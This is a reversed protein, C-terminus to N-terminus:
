RTPTGVTQAIRDTLYKRYAEYLQAADKGASPRMYDFYSYVVLKERFTGLARLQDSVRSFDAPKAKFPDSNLPPGDTQAFVEALLWVDGVFDENLTLIAEVFPLIDRWKEPGAVAAGDQFILIDVGAEDFFRTWWAAFKILKSKTPDTYGSAVVAKLPDLKNLYSSLQKFFWLIMQRQESTYHADTVEHPIYWGQFSKHRRLLPHIRDALQKNRTLEEELLEHTVNQTQWWSERLSLGVYLGIQADDTVAAIREMLSTKQEDAVSFDTDGYQVWQIILTDLGIRRMTALEDRWQAPLWARHEHSPQIFTAEFADGAFLWEEVAAPSRPAKAGSGTVKRTAPMASDDAVSTGTRRGVMVLLVCVCLAFIGLTLLRAATARVNM